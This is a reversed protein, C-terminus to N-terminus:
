GAHEKLWDLVEAGHADPKVKPWVRAIRGEPDIVFTSRVIGEYLKGYM